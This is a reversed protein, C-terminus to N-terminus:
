FDQRWFPLNMRIGGNFFTEVRQQQDLIRSRYFYQLDLYVYHALAYSVDIGAIQISTPIGQGIQNGYEQTRTNNPLLLNSGWNTNPTDTGTKAYIFRGQLLIKPHVQWRTRLILEAVNAGMPHALPQLDHTYAETQEYHSYTFPRILNFETQLDLHDVGFADIYKLGGQVAYKNAWWGTQSFLESFKFEDLMVQGYLQMRKLINWKANLGILVNDPSGLGHEVARYLILPNLYHLEFHHERNFVVGEFLGLQLTPTVHYSLFHAALYKKPVLTGDRIVNPSNSNLEAFLNQYHIKWVNWNIKLHLYNSSFDSLLLSRYGDGIMNRGYGFQAGIHPTLKFGLFGQSLLFDFGKTVGFGNYRKVLGIGPITKTAEFHDHVYEPFQAQNELIDATLFVRNDIGARLTVGRQNLFYPQDNSGQTGYKFQFMPNLRLHFDPTNVEIFNAPTPYIFGLMPKKHKEYRPDNWASEISPQDKTDPTNGAGIWENNNCFLYRLDERYKKGPNYLATDLYAAYQVVDGRTYPKITTHLSAPTGAIIEFRSLLTEELSGMPLPSGQALLLPVPLLILLYLISFSRLM